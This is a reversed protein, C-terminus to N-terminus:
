ERASRARLMRVGVALIVVAQVVGAIQKPTQQAGFEMQIAGATLGGFLLSSFGVGVANLGGLLAVAIADFGYGGSFGAYYAHHVGLIEVAGALGALAGSLTMATVLTRGVPIGAARAADPGLGTARIEYGLATRKFLFAVAAVAILALFFGASFNTNALQSSKVGVMGLASDVAPSGEKPFSWLFAGPAVMPTRPAQTSPDKLVNQVLYHTLNIAIYNMMITVIVEHTGRWAKLLGPVFAWAGGAVAGALLALVAHLGAPMGKFTFGVWASALAGVLLQGEAGINFLGARLALAVGLGAFILPTAKSLTRFFGPWSGFAGSFLDQFAALPQGGTMAIVVGATVFAFLLALATHGLSRLRASQALTV